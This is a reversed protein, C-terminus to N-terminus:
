MGMFGVLIVKQIMFYVEWMYCDPKYFIFMPKLGGLTIYNPNSTIINKNTYLVYGLYAPIGLPYLFVTLVGLWYFWAYAEDQEGGISVCASAMDIELLEIQTGGGGELQRCHFMQFSAAAVGPYLLYVIMFMIGAYRSRLLGIKVTSKLKKGLSDLTEEFKKLHVSEHNLKGQKERDIRADGISNSVKSVEWAYVAYVVVGRIGFGVWNTM